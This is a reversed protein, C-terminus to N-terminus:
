TFKSIGQPKLRKLISYFENTIIRKKQLYKILLALTLQTNNPKFFYYLQIGLIVFTLGQFIGSIAKSIQVENAHDSADNLNNFNIRTKKIFVKYLLVIAPILIVIAKIFNSFADLQNETFSPAKVLNNSNIYYLFNEVDM